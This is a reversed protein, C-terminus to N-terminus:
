VLLILGVCQPLRYIMNRQEGLSCEGMFINVPLPFDIQGTSASKPFHKLLRESIHKIQQNTKKSIPRVTDWAM